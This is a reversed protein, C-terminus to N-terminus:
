TPIRMKEAYLRAADSDNHNRSGGRFLRAVQPLFYPHMGMRALAEIDINRWAEKEADTLGYQTMCAEMDQQFAQFRSLDRRLEFVMRNSPLTKDTDQIGM